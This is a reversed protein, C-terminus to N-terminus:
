RLWNEIQLGPVRRFEEENDTVLTAGLALAHAAIFTDNPGIPTGIRELTARTVAYAEVVAHDLPRPVIFRLMTEIKNPLSQSGSKRAGFWLECQVIVSTCLPNPMQASLRQIKQTVESRPNRLSYSIINTDLLWLTPETM